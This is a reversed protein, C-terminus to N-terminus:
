SMRLHVITSTLCNKYYKTHLTFLLCKKIEKNFQIKLMQHLLQKLHPDRALWKDQCAQCGVEYLNM